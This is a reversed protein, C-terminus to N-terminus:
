YGGTGTSMFEGLAGGLWGTKASSFHVATFDRTTPGVDQRVWTAGGDRTMLVTGKVGVVWGLQPTQFHVARLEATGAPLARESWTLGGDRTELLLGELPSASGKSGVAWGHLGDVLQVAGVWRGAAPRAVVKWTAGGDVTAWMAGTARGLVLGTTSSSFSIGVSAPTEDGAPLEGLAAWTAGGDSTALVKSSGMVVVGRRADFFFMGAPKGASQSGLAATVDTWTKGRDATVSLTGDGLLWAATPFTQVAQQTTSYDLASGNRVVAWTQGGDSTGLVTGNRQVALGQQEDWFSLSWVPSPALVGGSLVRWTGGDDDSRLVADASLAVVSQASIPKLSAIAFQRGSVTPAYRKWSSGGDATHFADGSTLVVTLGDANDADVRSLQIRSAYWDGPWQLNTLWTWSRGGDVSRALSTGTDAWLKDATAALFSPPSWHMASPEASRRPGDADIYRRSWTAGGDTTLELAAAYPYNVVASAQILRWATRGSVPMVTSLAETTGLQGPPPQQLSVAGYPAWTVGFDDSRAVASWLVGDKAIKVLTDESARWTQGADSSFQMSPGRLALRQADVVTLTFSLYSKGLLESSRDLQLRWSDGGDTSGYLKGSRTLAWGRSPSAFAVQQFSEGAVRVKQVWTKGGDQTRYVAGSDGAAWGSQGDLFAVDNLVDGNGQMARSWCWGADDAASCTLGRVQAQQNVTIDFSANRAAGSADSVTLKVQYDGPRAFVHTPAPETSVATGDGFEWKFALGQTGTMSTAFAVNASSQVKATAVISVAAPLPTPPTSPAESSGGGGCGSLLGCVVGLLALGAVGFDRRM